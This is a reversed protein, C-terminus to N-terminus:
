RQAETDKTTLMFIVERTEDTVVTVSVPNPQSPSITHTAPPTVRVTWVGPRAETQLPNAATTVAQFRRGRPDIFELVAGQVRGATDVVDVRLTGAPDTDRVTVETNCGACLAALLVLAYRV